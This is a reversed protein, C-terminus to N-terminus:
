ERFEEILFARSLAKQPLEAGARLHRLCYIFFPVAAAAILLLLDMATGLDMPANGYSFSRKEGVHSSPM